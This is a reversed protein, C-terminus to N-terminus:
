LGFMWNRGAGCCWWPASQYWGVLHWKKHKPPMPHGYKLCIKVSFQPINLLFVSSSWAIVGALTKGNRLLVDGPFRVKQQPLNDDVKVEMVCLHLFFWIRQIQMHRRFCLVCTNAYLGRLNPMNYFISQVPNAFCPSTFPPNTFCPNTFM